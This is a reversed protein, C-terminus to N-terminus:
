IKAHSIEIDDIYNYIYKKSPDFPGNKITYSLTKNDIMTINYPYKEINKLNKVFAIESNESLTYLSYEDHHTELNTIYIFMHENDPSLLYKINYNENLVEGQEILQKKLSEADIKRDKQSSVIKNEVYNYVIKYRQANELVTYELTANDLIRLWKISKTEDESAFTQLVKPDQTDSIDYFTYRKYGNVAHVVIVKNTGELVIINILDDGLQEQIIDKYDSTTEKQTIKIPYITSYTGHWDADFPEISVNITSKDKIINTLLADSSQIQITVLNKTDKIRKYQNFTGIYTWKWEKTSESKYLDGDEILYDAGFVQWGDSGTFGTSTNNDTDLFYQLHKVEKPIGEDFTVYFTTEQKDNSVSQMDVFWTWDTELDVTKALKKLNHPNKNKDSNHSTGCGSLLLTTLITSGICLKVYKNQM